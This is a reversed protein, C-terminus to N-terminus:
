TLLAVTLRNSRKLYVRRGSPFAGQIAGSSSAALRRGLAPTYRNTSKAQQRGSEIAYARARVARAGARPM